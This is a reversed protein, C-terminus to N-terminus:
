MEKDFCGQLGKTHFGRLTPILFGEGQAERMDEWLMTVLINKTRLVWATREGEWTRQTELGAPRRPQWTHKWTQGSLESRAQTRALARVCIRVCVKRSVSYVPQPLPHAKM